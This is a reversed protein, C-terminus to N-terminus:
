LFELFYYKAWKVEAEIGQKTLQEAIASKSSTNRDIIIRLDYSITSADASLFIMKMNAYKNLSECLSTVSLAKGNVTDSGLTISFANRVLSKVIHPGEQIKQIIVLSDDKLSLKTKLGFAANLSDNLTKLYSPFDGPNNSKKFQFGMSFLNSLDTSSLKSKLAESVTIQYDNLFLAERYLDYVTANYMYYDSGTSYRSGKEIDPNYPTLKFATQGYPHKYSQHFLDSNYAKQQALKINEPLSNNKLLSDILAETLVSPHGRYICDGTKNIIVLHSASGAPFFKNRYQINDRLFGFPFNNKTQFDQINKLRDNSVAYFLIDKKYKGAIHNFLILADESGECKSAWWQLVIISGRKEKALVTKIKGKTPVIHLPYNIATQGVEIEQSKAFPTFSFFTSLVFSAYRIM